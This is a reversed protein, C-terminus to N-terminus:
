LKEPLELTVVAGSDAKSEITISGSLATTLKRVITLGLGTGKTKTTFFPEFAKSATESDMGQGNDKVSVLIKGGSLKASINLVGNDSAADAANQILNSIIQRLKDRDTTIRIGEPISLSLDTNGTKGMARVAEDVLSRLDFEEPRVEVPRAYLLLDETLKELRGSEDVVIGLQEKLIGRYHEPNERNGPNEAEELLYQAFGKISGLPNRIEHALVSAMEGLMALREKQRLDAELRESREAAKIFLFGAIWLAIIIGAIGVIQLNAQRVAAEAPYTHLAIRLTLIDMKIHVPFDMIFVEEGTALASHRFFPKGSLIAEALTNDVVIRGALRENSHALTTGKNDYLAIYAIGTRSEDAIVESFINKKLAFDHGDKLAAEISVGIGLAQLKLSDEASSRANTYTFYASVLSVFTAIACLLIIYTRPKANSRLAPM